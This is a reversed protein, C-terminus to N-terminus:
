LTFMLPRAAESQVRTDFQGGGPVGKDAQKSVEGESLGRRGVPNKSIFNKPIRFVPPTNEAPIEGPSLVTYAFIHLDPGSRANVIPPTPTGDGPKRRPGPLPPRTGTADADPRPGLPLPGRSSALCRHRHRGDPGTCANANGANVLIAQASGGRLRAQTILLPAAKVRNLTFVGAAAAPTDAVMLALDLVGPKKIAAATAAFKFGPVIM